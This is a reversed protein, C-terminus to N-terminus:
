RLPQKKLFAKFKSLTIPSIHHEAGEADVEAVRAPVGLCILFEVLIRHREKAYRALRKGKATLLISKQGAAELGAAEVFGLKRLRQITRIATVHSIGLHRAIEGVRARGTREILDFILETYDEAAEQNHQARTAHFKTATPMVASFPILGTQCTAYAVTFDFDFYCLSCLALNISM